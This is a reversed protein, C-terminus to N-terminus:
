GTLDQGKRPAPAHKGYEKWAKGSAACREHLLPDSEHTRIRKNKTPEIIAGCAPCKAMGRPARAKREDELLLDHLGESLRAVEADTSESM